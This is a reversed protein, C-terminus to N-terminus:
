GREGDADRACRFGLTAATYRAELASRFAARMFGAYDEKDGAALGGVGCFRLRDSERGNRSDSTVMTANFDLVWEWLGHLDSVGWFNPPTTGVALLTGTAPRTYRALISARFGPNAAGDPGDPGAAAALEWESEAPLRKGQAACYARAGFWSVRTVPADAAVADGLATPSAWHALYGGDVFLAPARGRQWEPHAIVFRLFEGNTVPVRDLQFLAVRQETTGPEPAYLLKLVGPGVSAMGDPGGAAAGASALACALAVALGSVVRRV